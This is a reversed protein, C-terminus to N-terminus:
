ARTIRLFAPISAAGVGSGAAVSGTGADVFARVSYTRSGSAPTRRRVLHVPAYAAESYGWQGIQTGDEFLCVAIYTTGKQVGMSFFEITVTTSGDFTVAGATIITNATGATTATISTASTKETYDYTHGTSASKEVYWSTGDFFFDVAEGAPIIRQSTIALNGGTDLTLGSPFLLSVRRGIWASGLTSVSTTGTVKVVENPPLQVTAASAVEPIENGGLSSKHMLVNSIRWRGYGDAGLPNLSGFLTADGVVLEHINSGGVVLIGYEHARALHAPLWNGNNGINGGNITVGQTYPATSGSNIYISASRPLPGADQCIYDTAANQNSCGVYGDIAINQAGEIHISSRQNEFKPASVTFGFLSSDNSGSLAKGTFMLGVTGFDYYNGDLTWGSIERASGSPGRRGDFYLGVSGYLNGQYAAFLTNSIGCENVAGDENTVLACAALSEATGTATATGPNLTSSVTITNATVSAIRWANNYAAVSAGRIALFDGALFDHNASTTVVFAAGSSTIGSISWKSKPGGGQFQSNSIRLSNTDAGTIYLCPKSDSYGGSGAPGVRYLVNTITGGTTGKIRLCTSGGAGIGATGLCNAMQLFVAGDIEVLGGTPTGCSVNLLIPEQCAEVHILYTDVNRAVLSSVSIDYVGFVNPGAVQIANGAAFTPKLISVELGEGRIHVPKAATLALQTGYRYIGDPFYLTGGTSPIANYAAMIATYDDTSDDGKAGFAKVNFVNRLWVYGNGDWHPVDSINRPGNAALSGPAADTQTLTGINSSAPTLSAM